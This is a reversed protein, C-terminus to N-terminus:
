NGCAQCKISNDYKLTDKYILSGFIYYQFIFFIDKAIIPMVLGCVVLCYAENGREKETLRKM